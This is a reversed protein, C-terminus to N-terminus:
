TATRAAPAERAVLQAERLEDPPIHCRYVHGDGDRQWPPEQTHCIEGLYRPCRTHFRCGTPPDAPSPLTGKLKIRPRPAELDLTPIASALAETYPHHPPEFVAEATGVDVLWGLYMVGIRDALYRVLALDHSIFIYSVRKEVQLDVLLNLIAAQISVDLASVPEDCLVLRPTGAFARAIAVRQKLGGSLAAPRVELHRPELRVSSALELMREHQESGSRLGALLRLSRGLMRQVAHRPNLATDPNQFVM